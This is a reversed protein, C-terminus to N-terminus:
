VERPFFKEYKSNKSLTGFKKEILRENNYVYM